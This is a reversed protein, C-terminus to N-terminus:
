HSQIKNIQDFLGEFLSFIIFFLNLAELHTLIACKVSRTDGFDLHWLFGSIGVSHSFYQGSFNLTFDIKLDWFNLFSGNQCNQPEATIKM